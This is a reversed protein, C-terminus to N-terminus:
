STLLVTRSGGTIPSSLTGVKLSNLHDASLGILTNVSRVKNAHSDQRELELLSLISVRKAKGSVLFEVDRHVSSVELDSLINHDSGLAALREGSSASQIGVGLNGVESVTTDKLVDEALEHSDVAM